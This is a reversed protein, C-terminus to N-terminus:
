TALCRAYLCTFVGCNFQNVQQPIEGPKNTYFSWQDKSISMDIEHLFAMMNGVRKIATPKIFEQPLSDLVIITKEKPLVVGLFWHESNIDNCPFFVMDQEFLNGKGQLLQEKTKKGVGKEFEEWGIVEVGTCEGKVIQLYSDIVFNSLWKLDDQPLSGELARLDSVDILPDGEFDVGEGMILHVLSSTCPHCEFNACGKNLYDKIQSPFGLVILIDSNSGDGDGSSIQQYSDAKKENDYNNGDTCDDDSGSDESSDDDSVNGDDDTTEPDSVKM